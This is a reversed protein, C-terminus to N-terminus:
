RQDFVAYSRAPVTFSGTASDFRSAKVVPDAGSAQIRGLSFRAGVTGPVAQTTAQPSANIVIVLGKRHPDADRGVTDDIREVIVGPTASPGSDPFSIKAQILAASGLHLLPNDARVALLETSQGAASLLNSHNPKLRANALLPQAYPWFAKNDAAPPLGKGFGNTHLSPDLENFWDGSNYSNIDFSKSRLAETGAQWFSVGQSLAVTSMALTQMRIRDVMSTSVPLKYTLLDYLTNDDHSDVYNVAESPQATYGTPQGNYDIQSGRVTAGTRDTFSYDALNGVLGVKIQDQELLLRARQEATSGNVPDGNPDTFLGSAYGQTRPDTDFVSGGRVADRIRDNFTGIGTGAMNAQSAQVFLANDAM